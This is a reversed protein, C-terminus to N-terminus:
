VMTKWSPLCILVLKRRSIAWSPNLIQLYDYLLDHYETHHICLQISTRENIRIQPLRIRISPDAFHAAHRLCRDLVLFFMWLKAGLLLACYKFYFPSIDVLLRQLWYVNRARQVLYSGCGYLPVFGLRLLFHLLVDACTKLVESPLLQRCGEM